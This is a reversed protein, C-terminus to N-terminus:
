GVPVGVAPAPVLGREFAVRVASTRNDVGLKRYINNLHFKVTQGTVWLEQAIAKNSLGRTLAELITVERETLGADEAASPAESSPGTAGSAMYVNGQCVQRVAAPLDVPDVTKVIYASAGRRLAGEIHERDSYSSLMVVKVDPHHRRIMELCALGDVGPMAIDLLAIDPSMEKVLPMVETGRTATAVVDMDPADSLAQVIGRLTVGHDDGVLISFGM